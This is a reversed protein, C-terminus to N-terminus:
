YYRAIPINPYSYDIHCNSGIALELYELQLSPSFLDFLELCEAIPRMGIASISLGLM